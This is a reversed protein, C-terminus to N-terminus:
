GRRYRRNITDRLQQTAVRATAVFEEGNGAYLTARSSSILLGNGNGSSTRGSRVM